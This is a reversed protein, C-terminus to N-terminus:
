NNISAGTRWMTTSSPCGNSFEVINTREFGMHAYIEVNKEKNTELYVPQCQEDARALGARLLLAGVGRGQRASHVGIVTLYWHPEKPHLSDVEGLLRLAPV